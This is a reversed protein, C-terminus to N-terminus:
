IAGALQTITLGWTAGGDSSAEITVTMTNGEADNVDYTFDVIKSGDNRITFDVNTVAPAANQAHMTTVSLLLVLLVKDILRM